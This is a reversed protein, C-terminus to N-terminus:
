LEPERWCQVLAICGPENSMLRIPFGHLKLVAAVLSLGLGAGKSARSRDSRYFRRFAAEREAEPVGPGSDAVRLLPRDGTMTLAIEVRGGAPTFKIANDILNVLVEVILDRDGLISAAEEAAVMLAIAKDEALPRYTEGTERVVEALDFPAFGAYRHGQEIEAIRLLATAVLLTQDIGAIARDIVPLVQELNGAHERGRELRARVATLPTRLDHAIDEGVGKLAVVLEELRVLIRNVIASLQDIEDGPQRVPFREDLHGAIIREATLRLRSLRRGSRVAVLIGGAISLLIAPILALLLARLLSARLALVDDITRAVVLIRGQALIRGAVREPHRRGDESDILHLMHVRGDLKLKPPVSPIDGAIRHGDRAFLSVMTLVRPKHQMRSTIMFPLLGPPRESLLEIQELVSMDITDFLAYTGFGYAIAFVAITGLTFALAVLTGWRVGTRRLIEPLRM